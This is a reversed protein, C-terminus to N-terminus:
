TQYKGRTACPGEADEKSSAHQPGPADPRGNSITAGFALRCARWLGLANLGRGYSHLVHVHTERPVNLLGAVMRLTLITPTNHSEFLRMDNEERLCSTVARQRYQLTYTHAHPAGRITQVFVRLMKCCKDTRMWDRVGEQKQKSQQM